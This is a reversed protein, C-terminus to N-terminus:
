FILTLNTTVSWLLPLYAIVRVLKKNEHKLASSTYRHLLVRTLNEGDSMVCRSKPATWISSLKLWVM